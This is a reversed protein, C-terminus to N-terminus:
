VRTYLSSYSIQLKIYPRLSGFSLTRDRNKSGSVDKQSSESSLRAPLTSRQFCRQNALLRHEDQGKCGDGQCSLMELPSATVVAVTVDNGKCFYLPPLQLHSEKGGVEM